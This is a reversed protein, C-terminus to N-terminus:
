EIPKYRREVRGYIDYTYIIRLAESEGKISQLVRLEAPTVPRGHNKRYHVFDQIAASQRQNGVIWSRFEQVVPQITM